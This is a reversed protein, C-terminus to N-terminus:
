RSTNNHIDLLSIEGNNNKISYGKSEIVASANNKLSNLKDINNM